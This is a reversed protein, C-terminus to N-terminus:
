LPQLPRRHLNPQLYHTADHLHLFLSSVDLLELVQEFYLVSEALIPEGSAGFLRLADDAEFGDVLVVRQVVLERELAQGDGIAFDEQLRDELQGDLAFCPQVM